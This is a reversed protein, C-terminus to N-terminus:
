CKVELSPDWRDCASDLNPISLGLGQRGKQKSLEVPNVRGQGHKGLGKGTQYGM